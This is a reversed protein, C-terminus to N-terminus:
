KLVAAISKGVAALNVVTKEKLNLKVHSMRADIRQRTTHFTTTYQPARHDYQSSSSSSLSFSVFLLLPFPLLSLKLQVTSQIICYVLSGQYIPMRVQAYQVSLFKSGESSDVELLMGPDGDSGPPFNDTLFSMMLMSVDFIQRATYMILIYVSLCVSLCM